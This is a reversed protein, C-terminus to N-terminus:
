LAVLLCGLKCRGNPHPKESERSVVIRDAIQDLDGSLANATQDDGKEQAQRRIVSLVTKVLRHAEYYTLPKAGEQQLLLEDGLGDELVDCAVEFAARIQHQVDVGVDVLGREKMTTGVREQQNEKKQEGSEGKEQTGGEYV